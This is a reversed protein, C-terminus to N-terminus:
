VEVKGGIEAAVKQIAEIASAHMSAHSKRMLGRWIWPIPLVTLPLYWYYTIWPRWLSPLFVAVLEDTFYVGPWITVALTVAFIVPLKKLMMLSFVVKGDRVDVLLSGDFPVGHAAVSCLSGETERFGPLRGRRSATQLREFVQDRTLPTVIVPLTPTPNSPTMRFVAAVCDTGALSLRDSNKRPVDHAFGNHIGPYSPISGLM